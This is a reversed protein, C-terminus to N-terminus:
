MLSFVSQSSGNKLKLLPTQIFIMHVFVGGYGLVTMWTRNKKTDLSLDGNIDM